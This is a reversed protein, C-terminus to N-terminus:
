RRCNRIASALGAPQQWLESLRESIGQRANFLNINDSFQINIVSLGPISQSRLTAIGNAGNVANEITTTVLQEVQEATFGPAETQIDVTSPVFDPFVDLPASRAAWLGLLLAILTLTAITGAHRVCLDVLWRM